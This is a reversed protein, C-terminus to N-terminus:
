TRIANDTKYLKTKKIDNTVIDLTKSISSQSLQTSSKTSVNDENNAQRSKRRVRQQRVHM